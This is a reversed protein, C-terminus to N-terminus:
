GEMRHEGMWRVRSACEGAGVLETAGVKCRPNHEECRHKTCSRKSWWSVHISRGGKEVGKRDPSSGKRDRRDSGSLGSWAEKADLLSGTSRMWEDSGCKTGERAVYTRATRSEDSSMCAHTVGEPNCFTWHLLLVTFVRHPFTAAAGRGTWVARCFSAVTRWTAFSVYERLSTRRSPQPIERRTAKWGFAFSDCFLEHVHIAHSISVSRKVNSRAFDMVHLGLRKTPRVAAAVSRHVHARKTRSRRTSRKPIRATPVRM